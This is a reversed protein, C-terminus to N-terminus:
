SAQRNSALLGGFAWNENSVDNFVISVSEPPCGCHKVMADTIAQAAAQKQEPTRGETLDIKVWPM